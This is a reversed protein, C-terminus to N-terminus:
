VKKVKVKKGTWKFMPLRDRVEPGIDEGLCVFPPGTVCSPGDEGSAPGDWVVGGSGGGSEGLDSPRDGREDM